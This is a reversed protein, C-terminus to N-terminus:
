PQYFGEDRLGAYHRLGEATPEYTYLSLTGGSHRAVLGASLLAKIAMEGMYGFLQLRHDPVPNGTRAYERCIDRLRYAPEERISRFVQKMVETNEMLTTFEDIASM